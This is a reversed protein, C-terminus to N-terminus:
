RRWVQVALWGALIVLAAVDYGVSAPRHPAGFVFDIASDM